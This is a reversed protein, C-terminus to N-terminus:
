VVGTAYLLLFPSFLRVRYKISVSISLREVGDDVGVLRTTVHAEEMPLVHAEEM